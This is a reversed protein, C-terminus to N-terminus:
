MSGGADVELGADGKRMLDAQEWRPINDRPAKQGDRQVRLDILRAIERQAAAPDSRQYVMVQRGAPHLTAAARSAHSARHHM